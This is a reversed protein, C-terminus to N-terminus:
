HKGRTTKYVKEIWEKSCNKRLAPAACPIERRFSGWEHAGNKVASGVAVGEGKQEKWKLEGVRRSM